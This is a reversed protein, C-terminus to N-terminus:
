TGNVITSLLPQIIDYYKTDLTTIILSKQKIFNQCADSM